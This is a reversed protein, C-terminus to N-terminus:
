AAALFSRLAELGVEGCVAYGDRAMEALRARTGQWLSDRIPAAFSVAPPEGRVVYDGPATVTKLSPPIKM